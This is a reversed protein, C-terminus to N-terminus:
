YVTELLTGPAPGAESLYIQIQAEFRNALPPGASGNGAVAKLDGGYEEIIGMAYEFVEGESLGRNEKITSLPQGRLVDKNDFDVWDGAHEGELWIRCSGRNRPARGKINAVRLARCGQESTIRGMPFMAPVWKFALARLARDIAVLDYRPGGYNNLNLM